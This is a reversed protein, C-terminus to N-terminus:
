ENKIDGLDVVKMIENGDEDKAKVYKYRETTKKFTVNNFITYVGLAAIAAIIIMGTLVLTMM